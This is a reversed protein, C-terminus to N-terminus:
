GARGSSSAVGYRRRLEALEAQYAPLMPAWRGRFTWEYIAEPDFGSSCLRCSGVRRPRRHRRVSHGAPCRGEWLGQAGEPAADTRKGDCGIELAKARWVNDHHHAPGVLAHAIEHLVTNRVEQESSLQTLRRSLGIERLLPRCVGFRTRANDFVLRWGVLGHEALLGAGMSAAKNLDMPHTQM